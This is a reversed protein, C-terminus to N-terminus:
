GDLERKGWHWEISASRRREALWEDFLLQEVADRCARDDVSRCELVIWVTTCDDTVVARRDGVGLSDGRLEESLASRNIRSITISACGRELLAAAGLGERTLDDRPELLARAALPDSFTARMVTLEDTLARREELCRQVDAPTVITTRLKALMAHDVACQEFDGVSMGRQDLWRMTEEASCLGLGRRLADAAAQIEVDAVEICRRRIEDRVICLNVLQTRLARDRWIGDLYRIVEQIRLPTGDVSLVDRESWSRSGLLIWPEVEAPCFGLSITAGDALDVLAVHLSQREPGEDTVAGITTGTEAAIAALSACVDTNPTSSEHARRLTDAVLSLTRALPDPLM